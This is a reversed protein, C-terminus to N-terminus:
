RHIRTNKIKLKIIQLYVRVQLYCKVDDTVRAPFVLKVKDPDNLLRLFIENCTEKLQAGGRTMNEKKVRVTEAEPVQEPANM